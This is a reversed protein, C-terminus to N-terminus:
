NEGPLDALSVVKADAPSAVGAVASSTVGVSVGGALDASSVVGADALSAVGVTVIGAFDMCGVDGSLSASIQGEVVFDSVIWM